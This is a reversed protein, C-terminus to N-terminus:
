PKERHDRAFGSLLTGSNAPMWSPSRFIQELSSRIISRVHKHKPKPCVQWLLLSEPLTFYTELFLTGCDGFAGGGQKLVGVVLGVDVRSGRGQGLRVVGFLSCLAHVGRGKAAGFRLVGVDDTEALARPTEGAARGALDGSM